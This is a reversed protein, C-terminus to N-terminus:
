HVETYTNMKPKFIVPTTIGSPLLQDPNPTIEITGIDGAETTESGGDDLTVGINTVYGSSYSSTDAMSIITGFIEANGRIDVIGGVIAGTLINNDGTNPNTNGLDVNFHPALITAEPISSQNEFTAAGTFYLANRQWSLANPTGTVIVGNFSCNEFRINNYDTSTAASCDVYLVEEFTCNKFLANTNSSIRVNRLTKNEYKYRTIKLSSSSAATTYGGSSLPAHPFYETVTSVGTKSLVGNQIVSSSASVTTSPIASKYGSTNYDNISLGSINSQGPQCYNVTEYEGQLEDNTSYLRNGSSDFMEIPSGYTIANGCADLVANGSSDVITYVGNSVSFAASFVDICSGSSSSVYNGNKDLLYGSSNVSQGDSLVLNGSSDHQFSQLQYYGADAIKQWPLVTNVSGEVKADGTMNFPALSQLAGSSKYGYSSYISGHITTDGTLWMRGRGALAYNLVEASKTIEMDMGITRSMAGDLGTSQVGILRPDGDYRFFRLQFGAGGQGMAAQGTVLEDGDGNADTFRRTILAQGGLAANTLRTRLATWRENAETNSVTNQATSVAPLKLVQYRAWELGSMASTLASNSNHHNQSTQTNASSMSLMGASMAMFVMIFILAAVMAIGSRRTKKAMRSQRYMFNEKAFYIEDM